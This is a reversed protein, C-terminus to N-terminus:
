AAEEFIEAGFMGKRGERDFGPYLAAMKGRVRVLREGTSSLCPLMQGQAVDLVDRVILGFRREGQPPICILVLCQESDDRGNGFADRLPVVDGRYQLVDEGAVQEIAKAEVREIREVCDLPIVVHQQKQNLFALMMEGSEKATQHTDAVRERFSVVDAKVSGSDYLNARRALGTTDLILAVRKDGLITAGAYVGVDALAGSLPKVVIDQPEQMDDVVLGFQSGKTEIVAIYYGYKREVEVELVDGLDILPVLRDRLLLMKVNGIRRVVRAEDRTHVHVAEKLTSHPVAFMEGGCRAIL